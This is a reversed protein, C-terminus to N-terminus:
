PKRSNRVELSKWNTFQFGRIRTVIYRIPIHSYTKHFTLNNISVGQVSAKKIFQKMLILDKKETIKLSTGNNTKSRQLAERLQSLFHRPMDYLYAILNLRGIMQKLKLEHVRKSSILNDLQADWAKLKHKPLSVRFTRTNIEWGLCIKIESPQSEVLFKKLSVIDKSPIPEGNTEITTNHNKHSVHHSSLSM